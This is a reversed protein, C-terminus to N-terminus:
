EFEAPFSFPKTADVVFMVLANLDITGSSSVEMPMDAGYGNMAQGAWVHKVGHLNKQSLRGALVYFAESGPNTHAPRTAGPPAIAHNIRLLYEPSNIPPVPGIEVVKRGGRASSGMPGLTFLWVKGEVEAVLSTAGAATQAEALTAFNQVQWFLPGIPLRKLKKEAVVSIVFANQATATSSAPLSAMAFLPLM